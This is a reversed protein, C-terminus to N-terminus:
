SMILGAQGDEPLVFYLVSPLNIVVKTELFPFSIDNECVPYYNM